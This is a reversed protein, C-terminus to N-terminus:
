NTDGICSGGRDFVILDEKEKKRKRRRGGGGEMKIKRDKGDIHDISLSTLFIGTVVAKCTYRTEGSKVIKGQKRKRFYYNQVRHSLM